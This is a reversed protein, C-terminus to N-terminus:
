TGQSDLDFPHGAQLGQLVLFSILCLTTISQLISGRVPITPVAAAGTHREQDPIRKVLEHLLSLLSMRSIPNNATLSNPKAAHPLVAPVAM